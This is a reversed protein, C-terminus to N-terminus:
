IQLTAGALPSLHSSFASQNALAKNETLLFFPMSCIIKIKKVYILGPTILTENTEPEICLILLVFAKAKLYKSFFSPCTLVPSIAIMQMIVTFIVHLSFMFHKSLM